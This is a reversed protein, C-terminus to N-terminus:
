CLMYVVQKCPLVYTAMGKAAVYELAKAVIAM